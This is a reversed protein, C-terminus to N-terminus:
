SFPFTLKLSSLQPRPSVSVFLESRGIVLDALSCFLLTRWSSTRWCSFLYQVPASVMDLRLCCSLWINGSWDLLSFASFLIYDVVFRDSVLVLDKARPFGYSCGFSCFSYLLILALSILFQCSDHSHEWPAPIRHLDVLTIVRKGRYRHQNTVESSQAENM